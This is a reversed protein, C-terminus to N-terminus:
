PVGCNAWCWRQEHVDCTRPVGVPCCNRGCVCMCVCVTDADYRTRFSTIAVAMRDVGELVAQKYDSVVAEEADIRNKLRKTSAGFLRSRLDPM